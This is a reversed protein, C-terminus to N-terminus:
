GTVDWGKRYEKSIFQEAEAVSPKLKAADWEFQKGCRYAVNGLLVTETLAGSYDFNCTTPGGTKCAEVWEKHHGISNPISPAAPKFGEFQKEPLLRYRNYDSILMGKDGVFLVGNNFKPTKSDVLLQPQKGGDYWNLKVGPFDYQVKLWNAATEPTLPTGEASVRTPHRLKLAWFALDTYHCAMDNLAGGGFVWYNRWSFPVYAKSYPRELATGLWLDWDLTKPITDEAPRKGNGGYSTTVWVHAETVKGIAGNQVLEVVRRYNNGAHIQTGMQTVCKHKAATEAVLRAEAVTHTLPKECYVHLGARLATLTPLAHMHDPTAVVVADLGKQEILKRFDAYFPAKPYASRFKATRSEDVDCGAVIEAGAAAVPKWDAEGQGAVGIIGVRLRESAPLKKEQAQTLPQWVMGLAAASGTQLFRRRSSSFAVSKEKL